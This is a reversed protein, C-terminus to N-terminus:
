PRLPQRPSFFLVSFGSLGWALGMRVDLSSSAELLFVECMPFSLGAIPADQGPEGCGGLLCPLDLSLQLPGLAPEQHFAGKRSGPLLRARIEHGWLSLQWCLYWLPWM